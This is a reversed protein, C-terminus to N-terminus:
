LGTARSRYLDTGLMQWPAQRIVAVLHDLDAHFRRDWEEEGASCAPVNVGLGQLIHDRSLQRPRQGTGSAVSLQAYVPVPDSTLGLLHPEDERLSLASMSMVRSHSVIVRELSAPSVQSRLITLSAAIQLLPMDDGICRRLSKQGHSFPTLNACERVPVEPVHGISAFAISFAM